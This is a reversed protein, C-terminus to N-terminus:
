TACRQVDSRATAASASTESFECKRTQLQASTPARQGCAIASAVHVQWTACRMQAQLCVWCFRTRSANKEAPHTWIATTFGSSPNTSVQTLVAVFRFLAHTDFNYISFLFACSTRLNRASDYKLQSSIRM